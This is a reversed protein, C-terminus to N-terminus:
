RGASAPIRRGIVRRVLGIATLTWAVLAVITLFSAGRMQDALGGLVARPMAAIRAVGACWLLVYAAVNVAFLARAIGHAGHEAMALSVIGTAM